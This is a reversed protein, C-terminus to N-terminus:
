NADENVRRNWAIAAEEKTDYGYVGLLAGDETAIPCGDNSSEMHSLGYRLGSWPNDVYDNGKINFEDDMIWFEVDGGCFPCPKLREM